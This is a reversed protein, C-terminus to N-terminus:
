SATPSYNLQAMGLQTNFTWAQRSSSFAYYVHEFKAQGCNLLAKKKSLYLEVISSIRKDFAQSSMGLM